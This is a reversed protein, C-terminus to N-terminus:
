SSHVIMGIMVAGKMACLHPEEPVILTRGEINSYIVDRLICCGAMGGMLFVVKSDSAESQSLLKVLVESIEDLVPKYIVNLREKTICLAGFASLSLGSQKEDKAKAFADKLAEKSSFTSSLKCRLGTNRSFHQSQEFMNIVDLWSSPYSHSFKEVFCWECCESICHIFRHRVREFGSCTVYTEPM